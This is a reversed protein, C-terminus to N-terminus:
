ETEDEKYLEEIEKAGIMKTFIPDDSETGYVKLVMCLWDGEGQQIEVEAFTFTKCKRTLSISAGPCEKTKFEHVMLNGVKTTVM